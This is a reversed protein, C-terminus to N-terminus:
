KQWISLHMVQDVNPDHLAVLLTQFIHSPGTKVRLMQKVWQSALAANEPTLDVVNDAWPESSDTFAIINFRSYKFVPTQSSHHMQVHEFQRAHDLLRGQNM